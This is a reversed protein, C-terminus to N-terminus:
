TPLAKTTSAATINRSSRAPNAFCVEVNNHVLTRLLNEAGNM